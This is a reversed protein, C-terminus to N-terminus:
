ASQTGAIFDLRNPITNPNCSTLPSIVWAVRTLWFIKSYISRKFTFTDPSIVYKILLIDFLELKSLSRSVFEISSANIHDFRIERIEFMRKQDIKWAIWLHMWAYIMRKLKAIAPHQSWHENSVSDILEVGNLRLNNLNPFMEDINLTKSWIKNLKGFISVREVM